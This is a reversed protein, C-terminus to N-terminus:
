RLPHHALAALWGADLAEVRGILVQLELCQRVILEFLDTSFEVAAAPRGVVSWLRRSSKQPGDDRTPANTVNNHAACHAGSMKARGAGCVRTRIPKIAWELCQARVPCRQCVAKAQQTQELAAGTTGSPFFLEPDEDLCAAKARWAPLAGLAASWDPEHRSGPRQGNM